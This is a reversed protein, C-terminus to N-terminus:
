IFKSKVLNLLCPELDSVRSLVEFNSYFHKVSRSEIGIAYLEVPSSEVYKVADKLYKDTSGARDSCPMGDSLVVLIKRKEKRAMIDRFALM